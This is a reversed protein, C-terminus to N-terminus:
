IRLCYCIELGSKKRIMLDLLRHEEREANKKMLQQEADTLRTERSTPVPVGQGFGLLANWTTLNHAIAALFIARDKLDRLLAYGDLPYGNLLLNECARVRRFIM